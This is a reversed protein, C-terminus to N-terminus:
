KKNLLEMEVKGYECIVNKLDQWNHNDYDSVVKMSKKINEMYIGLLENKCQKESMDDIVVLVKKEMWCEEVHQQCDKNNKWEM